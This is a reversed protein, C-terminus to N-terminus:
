QCYKQSTQDVVFLTSFVDVVQMFQLLVKNGYMIVYNETTMLNKQNRPKFCTEEQSLM